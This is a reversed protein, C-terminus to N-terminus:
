VYIVLYLDWFNGFIKHDHISNYSTMVDKRKDLIYLLM